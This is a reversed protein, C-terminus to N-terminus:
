LVYTCEYIQLIKKFVAPKEFNMKTPLSQYRMRNRMEIWLAQRRFFIYRNCREQKKLGGFITVTVNNRM